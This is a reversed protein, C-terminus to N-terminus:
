SRQDANKRPAHQHRRRARPRETERALRSFMLMLRETPVSREAGISQSRLMDRPVPKVLVIDDGDDQNVVKWESPVDTSNLLKALEAKRIKQFAMEVISCIFNRVGLDFDVISVLLQGLPTGHAAEQSRLRWFQHFQGTELLDALEVLKRVLESQETTQETTRTDLPKLLFRCCTTAESPLVMLSKALIIGKIDDKARDPYLQYLKLTLLHTAVDHVALGGAADLRVRAELEELRQPDYRSGWPYTSQSKEIFTVDM